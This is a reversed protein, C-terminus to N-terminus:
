EVLELSTAPKKKANMLREATALKDALDPMEQTTPYTLTAVSGPTEKTAELTYAMIGGVLGFERLANLVAVRTAIGEKPPMNIPSAEETAQPRASPVPSLKTM